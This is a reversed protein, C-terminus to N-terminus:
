SSMFLLKIWHCNIARLKMRSSNVFDKSNLTLPELWHLNIMIIIIIIVIQNTDSESDSNGAISQFNIINYITIILVCFILSNTIINAM